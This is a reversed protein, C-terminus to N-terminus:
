AVARVLRERGVLALALGLVALAVILLIVAAASALPFNFTNLVNNQIVSAVFPTQAGGLLVPTVYFGVAIAFVLAGSAVLGPLALPLAVTRLAHVRSAGISQAAAVLSLDITLFVAYLSFVAYPVMTYTIGAIVAGPTYLVEVPGLGVLGLADNLAGERGLILILAYNKVVTGMWFPALVALWLLARAAGSRVTRLHWALLAGIAVALVTVLASALLTTILARRTSDSTFADAYNGLGDGTTLSDVALKVLPYLVFGALLAVLPAVLLLARSHSLTPRWTM